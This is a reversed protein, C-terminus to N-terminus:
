SDVREKVADRDIGAKELYEEDVELLKKRVILGDHNMYAKKSEFDHYGLSVVSRAFSEGSDVVTMDHSTETNKEAGVYEGSTIEIQGVRDPDQDDRTILYFRKRVADGTPPETTSEDDTTAQTHDAM